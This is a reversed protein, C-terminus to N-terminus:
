IFILLFGLVLSYIACTEVVAAGILMTRLFISQNEKFRAIMKVAKATVMGVGVSGLTGISISLAAAMFAASRSIQYALSGDTAVFPVTYLLLLAIILAFIARTQTLAQGILMNSTINTNHSPVRGVGSTAEAGTDGCGINPGMVGLGMAVGAGLLAFTKAWDMMVEFFGGFLLLLSVVLSFIAGTETIAMGILMTRMVTGHSAPQRGIAKMSYGGIQGEGIAAGIGGIGTALAAGLVIAIPAFDTVTM